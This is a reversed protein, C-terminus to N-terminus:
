MLIRLLHMYIVEGDEVLSAEWEFAEGEEVLTLLLMMLTGVEDEEAHEVADEKGEEVDEEM